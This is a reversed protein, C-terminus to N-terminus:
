LHLVMFDQAHGSHKTSIINILTFLVVFAIAALKIEFITTSPFIIKLFAGMGILAFAGKLSISFWNALGAFSGMLPGLSRGVFFYTGGAKPMATGLEAKSLM